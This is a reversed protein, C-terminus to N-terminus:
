CNHGILQITFKTTKILSFHPSTETDQFAIYEIYHQVLICLSWIEFKLNVKFKKKHVNVDPINSSGPNYLNYFDM